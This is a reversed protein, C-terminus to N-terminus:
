NEKFEFEEEALRIINGSVVKVYRGPMVRMDNVFTGNTTDLDQIYYGDEFKMICAHKRSINTNGSICYDVSNEVSGIVFSNQNVQITEGTKIRYLTPFVSVNQFPQGNDMPIEDQLVTTEYNMNGQDSLGGLPSMPRNTTNPMVGPTVRGSVKLAEKAIVAKDGEEKLMKMYKKKNLILLVILVIIVILLIAVVIIAIIIVLKVSISKKQLLDINDSLNDKIENVEGQTYRSKEGDNIKDIKKKAQEYSEYCRKWSEPTYDDEELEEFDAILSELDELDIVIEENYTIGLKDFVDILEDIQLAYREEINGKNKDSVIAVVEGDDNLLPFGLPIEEDSSFRFYHTEDIESWDDITCEIQSMDQNYSHLESGKNFVNSTECLRITTLNGIDDSPQLIAFNLSESSNVISLDVKIDDKLVLEIATKVKDFEVGHADAVASKEEDTLIVSDCTSVLYKDKETGVFFASGTKIIDRAGTDTCFMLRISVIGKKEDYKEADSSSAISYDGDTSTAEDAWVDFNFMSCILVILLIYVFVKKM